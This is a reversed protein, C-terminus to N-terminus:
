SMCRWWCLKGDIPDFCKINLHAMKVNCEINLKKRILAPRLLILPIFSFISFANMWKKQSKELQASYHTIILFRRMRVQWIDSCLLKNTRALNIMVHKNLKLMPGNTQASRLKEKISNRVCGNTNTANLKSNGVSVWLVEASKQGKAGSFHM